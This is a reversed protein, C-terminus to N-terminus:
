KGLCFQEFIVDLIDDTTTEGVIDALYNLCEQLDVAILDNTLGSQLSLM